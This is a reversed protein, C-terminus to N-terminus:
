KVILFKEAFTALLDHKSFRYEGPNDHHFDHAGDGLFLIDFFRSYCVHRDGHSNDRHGLHNLLNMSMHGCMIPLMYLWIFGQFSISLFVLAIVVHIVVYHKYIFNAFADGKLSRLMLRLAGNTVRGETKMLWLSSYNTFLGHHRWSSPDRETDVNVHHSVHSLIWDQPTGLGGLITLIHLFKRKFPTTKFASHTFYRHAGIMLGVTVIFYSWVIGAVSLPWTFESFGFVLIIATWFLFINYKVRM